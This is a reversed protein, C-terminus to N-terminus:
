QANKKITQDIEENTFPKTGMAGHIMEDLNFLVESNTTGM